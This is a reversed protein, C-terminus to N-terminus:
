KKINALKAWRSKNISENLSNGIRIVSDQVNFPPNYNIEGSKLDSLATAADIPNTENDAQPMADRSPAGPVVTGACANIADKVRQIAKQEGEATDTIGEYQMVAAVYPPVGTDSPDGTAPDVKPATALYKKIDGEGANFLNGGKAGKTKSAGSDAYIALHVAKLTEDATKSSANALEVNVSADPNLMFAQSWRHHGDLVVMGDKTKAGLLAAKFTITAGPKMHDVLWDVDGWNIGDWTANVGGLVNALSQDMGVENQSAQLDKLPVYVAGAASSIITDDKEDGDQSGKDVIAKADASLKATPDGAGMSKLPTKMWKALDEAGDEKVMKEILTRLKM